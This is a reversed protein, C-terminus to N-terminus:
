AASVRELETIQRKLDMEDPAFSVLCGDGNSVISVYPCSGAVHNLIREAQASLWGYPTPELLIAAEGETVIAALERGTWGLDALLEAGWADTIEAPLCAAVVAVPPMRPSRPRELRTLRKELSTM